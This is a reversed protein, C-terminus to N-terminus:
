VIAGERCKMCPIWSGLFRMYGSKESECSCGPKGKFRYAWTNEIPKKWPLPNHYCSLCYFDFEKLAPNECNKCTHM